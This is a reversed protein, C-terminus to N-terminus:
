RREIVFTYTDDLAYHAGAGGLADAVAQGLEMDDTVISVGVLGQISRDEPLGDPLSWNEWDLRYGQREFRFDGPLYGELGPPVQGTYSDRPWAQRESRYTLAALRVTQFDAVVEAARGRLVVRHLDPVAIRALTSVVMAVTLMEVMTFGRRQQGERQAGPM